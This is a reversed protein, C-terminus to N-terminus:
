NSPYKPRLAPIVKVSHRDMLASLNRIKEDTEKFLNMILGFGEHIFAGLHAINETNRKINQATEAQAERLKQIDVDFKAQQNVIFEAKRDFEENTM